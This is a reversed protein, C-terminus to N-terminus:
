KKLPGYKDISKMSWDGESYRRSEKQANVVKKLANISKKVM